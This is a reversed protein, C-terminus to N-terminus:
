SLAVVDAAEEALLKAEMEEFDDMLISETLKRDIDFHPQPEPTISDEDELGEEGGVDLDCSEWVSMRSAKGYEVQSTLEWELQNITDADEEDQEEREGEEDHASIDGGEVVIMTSERGSRSFPRASRPTKSLEPTMRSAVPAPPMVCTPTVSDRDSFDTIEQLEQSIDNNISRASDLYLSYDQQGSQQVHEEAEQQSVCDGTSSEPRWSRPAMKYLKNSVAWKTDATKPRASPPRPPPEDRELGATFFESLGLAYPEYLPADTVAALAAIEQLGTSPGKTLVGPGFIELRMEARSKARSEPRGAARSNPRSKMSSAPRSKASKPRSTAPEPLECSPQETPKASKQPPQKKSKHASKKRASKPTPTAFAERCSPPESLPPSASGIDDVAETVRYTSCEEIKRSKRRASKTPNEHIEVISFRSETRFEESDEEEETPKINTGRPTAMAAYMSRFDVRQDEDPLLDDDFCNGNRAMPNEVLEDPLSGLQTRRHRKLMLKEAYTLSGKFRIDLPVMGAVMGTTNAGFDSNVTPTTVSDRHNDPASRWEKLAAQFAAASEAENYEGDMLLPTEVRKERPPPPQSKLTEKAFDFDIESLTVKMPNSEEESQRIVLKNSNSQSSPARPIGRPTRISNSRVPVSRHKKLAGKLHFSAFCNACYDEGCEICSVHAAKQECQGCGPGKLKNEKGSSKASSRKAINAMTGPGQHREPLTVPEDRLVKVKKKSKNNQKMAAKHMAEKGYSSLSGVQGTRWYGGSKQEREEKERNMALKLEQLRVEMRRNENELKQSTERADHIERNTAILNYSCNFTAPSKHM